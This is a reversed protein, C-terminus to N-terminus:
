LSSRGPIPGTFGHFLYSENRSCIEHLYGGIWDEIQPSIYFRPEMLPDDAAIVGERVAIESLATHPMLRIGVCFDVMMPSRQSLFEVSEEVTQRDEGPAGILLTLIYNIQMEELIEAASRLAVGYDSDPDIHFHELQERALAEISDSRTTKRRPSLVRSAAMGQPIESPGLKSKRRDPRVTVSSM